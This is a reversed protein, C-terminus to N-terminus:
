PYEEPEHEVGSNQDSASKRRIFGNTARGQISVPAFPSLSPRDLKVDNHSGWTDADDEIWAKGAEVCCIATWGNGRTATVHEKFGTRHDFQKSLYQELQNFFKDPLGFQIVFESWSPVHNLTIYNVSMTGWMWLTGKGRFNNTRVWNGTFKRVVSLWKGQFENPIFDISIEIAPRREGEKWALEPFSLIRPTDTM